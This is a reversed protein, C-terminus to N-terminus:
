GTPTSSCPAAPSQMADIEFRRAFARRGGRRFREFMEGEATTCLGGANQGAALRRLRQGQGRDLRRREALAAVISRREVRRGERRGAIEAGAVEERRDAATRESHEVTAVAFQLAGQELVAAAVGALDGHGAAQSPERGMLPFVATPVEVMQLVANALIAAIGAGVARGRGRGAQGQQRKEAGPLRVQAALILFGNAFAQLKELLAGDGRREAAVQLVAHIQIGLGDRREREAFGVRHRAVRVEREVQRSAIRKM